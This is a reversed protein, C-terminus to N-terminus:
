CTAEHTKGGAFRIANQLSMAKREKEDACAFVYVLSQQRPVARQRRQLPPGGRAQGITGATFENYAVLASM